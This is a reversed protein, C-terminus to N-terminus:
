DIFEEPESDPKYEGLWETFDRKFKYESTEFLEYFLDRNTLLPFNERGILDPFSSWKYDELYAIAREIDKIGRERWLPEILSVPNAMIYFPLYFFHSDKRIPIIKSRGQFLVGKRKYEENIYKTYGGFIKKSFVSAGSKTREQVLNHCHNPMLCWCLIDIIKVTRSPNEHRYKCRTPYPLAFNTSNFDYLNHAFRFYDRESYFIEREEVGRNVIHFIDGEM